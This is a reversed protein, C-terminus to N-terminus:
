RVRGGPSTARAARRRPSRSFGVRPRRELQERRVRNREPDREREAHQDLRQDLAALDVGGLPGQAVMAEAVLDLRPRRAVYRSSARAAGGPGPCPRSASSSRTSNPRRSSSHPPALGSAERQRECRRQREGSGAVALLRAPHREVVELPRPAPARRAPDADRQARHREVSPPESRTSRSRSAADVHELARRRPELVGAGEGVEAGGQPPGVAAGLGATRELRPELQGLPAAGAREGLPGCRAAPPRRGISRGPPRRRRRASRRRAARPRAPPRPGCCGPSRGPATRSGCSRRSGGRGRRGCAPSRPGRRARARAAPAASRMRGAALEPLRNPTSGSAALAGPRGSVTVSMARIAVSKLGAVPRRVTKRWGSSVFPSSSCTSQIAAPGQVVPGPGM